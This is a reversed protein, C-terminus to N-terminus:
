RLIPLEARFRCSRSHGRALPWKKPFFPRCSHAGLQTSPHPFSLLSSASPRVQISWSGVPSGDWKKFCPYTLWARAQGALREWGRPPNDAGINGTPDAPDLIVPRFLLMKLPVPSSSLQTQAM